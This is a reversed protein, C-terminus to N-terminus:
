AASRKRSLVGLEDGVDVATEDDLEDGVDVATEDGVDVSDDCDYM